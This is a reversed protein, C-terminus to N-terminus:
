LRITTPPDLRTKHATASAEATQKGIDPVGAVAAGAQVMEPVVPGFTSSRM